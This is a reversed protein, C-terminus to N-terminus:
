TASERERARSTTAERKADSASLLLSRSRLLRFFAVVSGSKKFALSLSLSFRKPQAHKDHKQSSSKEEWFAWLAFLAFFFILVRFM